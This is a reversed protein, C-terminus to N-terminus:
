RTRKGARIQIMNMLFLIFFSIVLMVIAIATAQAYDYEQLQAMILLPAIETSYPKNGAIFIVSGYRM